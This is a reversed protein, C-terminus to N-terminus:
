LAPIIMAPSPPRAFAHCAAATAALDHTLALIDLLRGIMIHAILISHEVRMRSLQRKKFLSM